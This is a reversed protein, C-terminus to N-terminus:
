NIGSKLKDRKSIERRRPPVWYLGSDIAVFVIIVNLLETKGSKFTLWKKARIYV